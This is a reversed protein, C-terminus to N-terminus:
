PQVKKTNNRKICARCVREIRGDRDRLKLNAGSFPHGHKCHTKAENSAPGRATNEKVTVAELHHPNVCGRNRCLHDIVLGAPIPGIFHQYAVRHARRNKGRLGFYSYGKENKCGTWLWCGGTPVTKRIFREYEKVTLM